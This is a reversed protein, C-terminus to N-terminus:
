STSTKGESCAPIGSYLKHPTIFLYETMSAYQLINYENQQHTSYRQLIHYILSFGCIAALTTVFTVNNLACISFIIWQLVKLDV